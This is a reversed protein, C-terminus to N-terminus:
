KPCKPLRKQFFTLYLLIDQVCNAFDYQDDQPDHDGNLDIFQLFAQASSRLTM